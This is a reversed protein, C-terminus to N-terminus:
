WFENVQKNAQSCNIRTGNHQSGNPVEVTQNTKASFIGYKNGGLSQFYFKQNAGNGWEYIILNNYDNPNQSVDLVMNSALGSVIKYYAGQVPTWGSQQTFGQYQFGQGQQNFGQNQENQHHNHGHHHGHHGHGQHGHGPFNGGFGGGFM